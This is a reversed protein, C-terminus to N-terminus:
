RLPHASSSKMRRQLRDISISYLIKKDETFWTSDFTQCNPVELSPNEAVEAKSREGGGGYGVSGWKIEPSRRHMRFRSSDMNKQTLGQRQRREESYPPM